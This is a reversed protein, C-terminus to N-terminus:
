AEYFGLLFVCANCCNYCLSYSEFLEWAAFRFYLIVVTLQVNCIPITFACAYALTQWMSVATSIWSVGAMSGVFHLRLSQFHQYIQYLNTIKM